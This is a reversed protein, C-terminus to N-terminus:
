TRRASKTRSSNSSRRRRRRTRRHQRAWSRKGRVPRRCAGGGVTAQTSHARCKRIGRPGRVMSRLHRREGIQGELGGRLGDHRDVDALHDSAFVLDAADDAEAPHRRDGGRMVELEILGDRDFEEMGLGCSAGIRNASEQALRAGGCAEVARMDRAHEVHAGRRRSVGADNRVHDHLQELAGVEIRHELLATGEGDGLGDLVHHLCACADGLRVREVDDM